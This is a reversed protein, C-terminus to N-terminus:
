DGALEILEDRSLEALEEAPPGDPLEAVYARWAEIGSGPGSKPPRAPAKDSPKAAMKNAPKPQQKAGAAREVAATLGAREALADPIDHGRPYALIRADPDGDPVLRGDATKWWHRDLIM